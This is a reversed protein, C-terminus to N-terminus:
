HEVWSLTAASLVRGNIPLQHKQHRVGRYCVVVVALVLDCIFDYLLSPSLFYNQGWLLIKEVLCFQQQSHSNLYVHVCVCVSGIVLCCCIFAVFFLPIRFFPLYVILPRSTLPSLLSSFFKYNCNLSSAATQLKFNFPKLSSSTLCENFYFM